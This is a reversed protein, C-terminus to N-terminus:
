ACFVPLLAGVVFTKFVVGRWGSGEDIMGLRNEGLASVVIDVYFPIAQFFLITFILIAAETGARAWGGSQRVRATDGKLATWFALGTVSIITVLPIGIVFQLHISRLEPDTDVTAVFGTFALSIAPLLLGAIWSLLCDFTNPTRSTISGRPCMEERHNHELLGHVCLKIDKPSGHRQLDSKTQLGSAKENQASPCMNTLWLQALPFLLYLVKILGAWREPAALDQSLLYEHAVVASLGVLFSTSCLLYNLRPCRLPQATLVARNASLRLVTVALLVYLLVGRLGNPLVYINNTSANRLHYEQAVNMLEAFQM